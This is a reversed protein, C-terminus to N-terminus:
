PAPEIAATTEHAVIESMTDGTEAGAISRLGAMMNGGLGHCGVVVGFYQRLMRVILHGIVSETTVVIV